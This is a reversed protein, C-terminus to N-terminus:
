LNCAAPNGNACQRSADEKVPDPRVPKMPKNLDDIDGSETKQYVDKTNGNAQYAYISVSPFDKASGGVVTVTGDAAVKLTFVMEIWGGPAFPVHDAEYGNEGYVHITFTTSGDKASKVDSIWDHVVGMRSGTTTESPFVRSKETISHGAINVDIMTQTRATAKPDNSVPGRNDGHGMHLFGFRRKQIYSELCIGVHGKQVSPAYCHGDVDIKATPINRVYSYLNLSQPDNFDAYPVPAPAASWDASLWRSMGNSYYRAGFYDLGTETDREKGTFKYHNPDNNILQMEGGWPTYDYDEKINGAADTIVAASKLHDSFYYSIAGGPFDRRAVRAGNFFLYEANLNGSLDSEAVIGLSMYWYLTGSSGNSKKVRNGGEDYVYTTTVNNKTATQIRNEPDFAATVLDTPDSTTNGAADYQYDPAGVHIRNSIDATALLNEGSCKTVTKQLLNGWADYSYNNGWFKTKGNLTTQSCDTGANQASILRNLADYAFTQDRSHDRNNLIAFVDGNNGSGLHFDYNISFVTLPGSGGGGFSTAPSTFSPNPFLNSQSDTTSLASIATTVNGSTKSVLSITAGSVSATAPSSSVNIANALATAVSSATSNTSQSFPVTAQFSGITLTVTGSDFVTTGPNGNTGGSLAGSTPSSSFSGATGFDGPDNSSSSLSWSYNTGAGTQRATLTLAGNSATATVSAGSDNNIATALNAAVSTATSAAGYSTSDTHGNVTISVTGTDFITRPCSGGGGRQPLTCGQDACPDIVTSNEFGTITLTGTGATPNTAGVGSKSQLTGSVPVSATAFVPAANPAVASMNVPQLRNNFSFSNSIGAFSSTAGSLFGTPSGDPTYTALTGPGSPGVIYNINNGLDQVMGTRGAADPTYTIVANSPYTATALSGDLNYTYSMSKSASAITRQETKIRGLNDYTYSASGAPDTLSSVKGIANAGQDYVYSVAATGAPLLGNSCTQASYAKGTPRNLADYCYSITQRATGTQNAQPSTKQLVNGNADYAYNITGSEPNNASLLRSLSDYTFTRKRWQTQDTSGGQQVAQLLNGSADYAYQTVMPASLSGAENGGSLAAPCSMSFSPSGFNSSDYTSSCFLPLNGGLGAVKATLTVTSGSAAATVLANADNNIASALNTAITAPTTGSGSWSTSDGLSSVTLSTTGSDYISAGGGSLTGSTFSPSFASQTAQPNQTRANIGLTIGNGASGGVVATLNMVAGNVSCSVVTSTSSTSNVASCLASAVSSATSPSAGANGYQTSVSASGITVTVTGFDYSNTGPVISDTGSITITGTAPNPSQHSQLSGSITVTATASAALISESIGPTPEDVEILRGLGDHCMRKRKGAEDVSVACNGFYSSTKISGDQNTIQLVRGLADYATQTSGDTASAANRHPNSVTIARGLGDYATDTYDVGAPDSNVQKQTEQGMGNLVATTVVNLTGTIKKTTVVSPNAGPDNYTTTVRGGDPFDTETPRRLSDAYLYTTQQNNEDKSVTLASDSFAYSFNLIHNVGNTQPATIQTLFANTNGSPVPANSPPAPDFFSDAFSYQVINGNPDTRSAQQGTQDYAYHTVSDGQSCAQTGSFCKVTKTTANGRGNNFGTGFNQDDHGTASAAAVTTEDYNYDTEAVRTGSGDYVIVDSPRDLIATNFPTTPTIPPMLPNLPFAHNYDAHTRRLLSGHSGPAAADPQVGFDYEFIDSVVNILLSNPSAYVTHTYSSEGNDLTTLVDPPLYETRYAKTITRLVHGNAGKYQIRQEAPHALIVGTAGNIQGQPDNGLVQDPQPIYTYTTVFSTNTVKDITTVTTTKQSWTQFPGQSPNVTGVWTTNYQFDQEQGETVGDFSVFRKQIAPVDVIAECSWGRPLSGPATGFVTPTYLVSTSNPNLGWVYRVYGGNPYIVERLLGYPNDGNPNDYVFRYSLGNPLQIATVVTSSGAVTGVANTLSGNPGRVSSTNNGQPLGCGFFPAPQLSPAIIQANYNWGYNVTGWSLTYPQAMGVVAVTDGAPNGFSSVSVATRGLTDTVRFAGSSNFSQDDDSFTLRNGNRTEIFDPLSNEYHIEGQVITPKTAGDHTTTTNFYRGVGHLHGSANSFYYTTGDHDSVTVPAPPPNNGINLQATSSTTATVIGNTNQILDQAFNLTACAEFRAPGTNIGLPHFTGEADIFSYSDFADCWTGNIGQAFGSVSTGPSPVGKAWLGLDIMYLSGTDPTSAIQSTTLLEGLEPVVLRWGGQALYGGNDRIEPDGSVFHRAGNSDYGFAFPVTIDRGPPASVGFKLNVAGTAPVVTENMLKIYDHGAHPVPPAQDATVTTIQSWAVSPVWFQIWSSIVLLLMRRSCFRAQFKTM